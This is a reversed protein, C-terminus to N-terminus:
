ISSRVYPIVNGADPSYLAGIAEKSIHPEMKRLERQDVIRLFKVGNTEGRKRLIELHEMDKQNFAVVLSGNMQYGFRLERDLKAFMQNGKWCFKARKSGPKDDYGAHVIGSNGKTAGQSVDDAAEVWLIKLKYKSLERAIAAGICGAGILMVDYDTDFTANRSQSRPCATKHECSACNETVFTGACDEIDLWSGGYFVGGKGHQKGTPPKIVPPPEYWYMDDPTSPEEEKSHGTDTSDTLSGNSGNKGHEGLLLSDDATM